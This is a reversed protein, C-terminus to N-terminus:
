FAYDFQVGMTRPRLRPNLEPPTFPVLVGYENSLNDVFLTATWRDASLISFAARAILVDDGELVIATGRLLHTSQESSYNASVSFQGSFAASLPFRYQASAGATYEPSSNLRDGKEFLAVGSSIVDADMALDNWSFNAGLELGDVPRATVAFDLGLGSASESNILTAIRIGNGIPLSIVQQIDKWDIYYLASELSIRRDLFEAKMGMEYNHLKDPKAPVFSPAQRVVTPYQPFGGRFGESYSGYVMLSSGPHWTLVGRPTTSNFSATEFILPVNPLGQGQVNERSSVDDHFRRVGLTWEWRDNSFRRSLEGFVAYSESRDTLDLPAPLLGIVDQFLRDKADRYFAGATWRWANGSTSNLIVEQSFIQSYFANPNAASIPFGFVLLDLVGENAYDFYSTVSTLAFGTFGYGLKLGYTDYDTSLPEDLLASIGGDDRSASPAGYDNSVRWATLGLSLRETPQANLKLRYNRLQAHNIHNRLPSDVWGSLDQYNVVARAALKGEVLPVNFAVDGRYNGGGGDTTSVLARTKLEFANLNADNTLVRVVGNQANAGYLTGQPGRLVELRQLDFANPDPGFASKVFGFPVSDLYYAVPSSGTFHAAGAGVGRMVINTGGGMVANMVTVGPVRLLAETVGEVTSKDLAAGSLVSISIPVDQLRESRKQATVVIEELQLSDNKESSSSAQGSAGEATDVASGTTAAGDNRALRVSEQDEVARLAGQGRREVLITRGDTMRYSLDTGALLRDLADTLSLEGRVGATRLNEVVDPAFLIERDGQRACENLASSLAQSAINFRRKVPEAGVAAIAVSLTLFATIWRMDRKM